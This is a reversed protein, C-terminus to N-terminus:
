CLFPRPGVLSAEPLPYFIEHSIKVQRYLNNQPELASACLLCWFIKLFFRCSAALLNQGFLAFFQLIQESYRFGAKRRAKESASAMIMTM